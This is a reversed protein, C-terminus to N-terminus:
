NESKNKFNQNGPMMQQRSNGVTTVTGTIIFTETEEGDLYLTYTEGLNFNPSGAAIHNFSKASTHSFLTDGTSNKIEILTNKPTAESLFISINNISSTNGESATFTLMWSFSSPERAM